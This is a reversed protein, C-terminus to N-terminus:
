PNKLGCNCNDADVKNLQRVDVNRAITPADVNQEITPADVDDMRVGGSKAGPIGSGPIEM